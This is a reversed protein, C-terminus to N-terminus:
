IALSIPSTLLSETRMCHSLLIAMLASQKGKCTNCSESYLMMYVKAEWLRTHMLTYPMFYEWYRCLCHVAITSSALLSFRTSDTMDLCCSLPLLPSALLTQCPILMLRLCASTRESCSRMEYSTLLNEFTTGVTGAGVPVAVKQFEKQLPSGKRWHSDWKKWHHHVKCKM